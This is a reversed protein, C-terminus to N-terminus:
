GCQGGGSKDSDNGKDKKPLPANPMSQFFGISFLSLSLQVQDRGLRVPLQRRGQRPVGAGRRQLPRIHVAHLRRFGGLSLVVRRLQQESFGLNAWERVCAAEWLREDQALQRLGRSVCASAALTRAEARRLVEFMLDDGLDPVRPPEGDERADPTLQQQQPPEAQSSSSAGAQASSSPRDTRQKKTPENSSGDGAAPPAPPRPAWPDDGGSSDSRCKM